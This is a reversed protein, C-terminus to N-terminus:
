PNSSSWIKKPCACNLWLWSYFNVLNFVCLLLSPTVPNRSSPVRVAKFIMRFNCLIHSMLLFTTHEKSCNEWSNQNTKMLHFLLNKAILIYVPPLNLFIELMLTPFKRKEKQQWTGRQAVTRGSTQLTIHTKMRLSSAIPLSIGLASSLWTLCM